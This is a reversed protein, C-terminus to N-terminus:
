KQWWSTEQRIWNKMWLLMVPRLSECHMLFIHIKNAKEWLIIIKKGFLLFEEESNVFEKGIQYYQCNTGLNKASPWFNGRTCVLFRPLFHIPLIGPTPFSIPNTALINVPSLSFVLNQVLNKVSLLGWNQPWNLMFFVVAILIWQIFDPHTVDSWNYSDM